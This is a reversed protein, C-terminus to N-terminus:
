LITVSTVDTLSFLQKTAQFSAGAFYIVTGPAIAPLSLTPTSGGGASLVGSMAGPIQTISWSLYPDQLLGLERGDGFPLLFSGTGGSALAAFFNGDESAAFGSAQVSVPNGAAFTGTPTLTQSRFGGVYVHNIGLDNALWTTIFNGYLPNFCIEAFDVDGTNDSSQIENGFSIGGDRSVAAAATHPNVGATFTVAVYDGHGALRPFSGGNSSVQTEPAFGAFGGSIDASAVFTHDIALRDDEWSVVLTNLDHILIAPNDVDNTGALYSGILQDGSFVGGTKVNVWLEESLGALNDAQMAIAVNPGSASIALADDVDGGAAQINSSVPVDLATFAALGLDYAAYYVADNPNGAFNDAFAIHVISDELDLAIADVDAQGNHSTAPLASSFTAGGDTSVVLYLEEDINDTSILVAVFDGECDMVYNRVPNAGIAYGKDLLINPQWTGGRNVSFYLDDSLGNRNDRWCAYQNGNTTTCISYSDVAKAAGTLDDDVRSPASWQLGRGDSTVAWLTNNAGDEYFVSTMNGGLVGSTSISPSSAGGINSDVQQSPRPNQAALPTALVLLTLFSPILHM